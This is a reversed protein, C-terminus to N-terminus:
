IEVATVGLGRWLFSAGSTGLDPVFFYARDLAVRPLMIARAM